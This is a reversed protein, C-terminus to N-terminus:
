LPSAWPVLSSPCMHQRMLECNSFVQLTQCCIALTIIPLHPPLHPHRAFILGATYRSLLPSVSHISNCACKYLMSMHHQLCALAAQQSFTCDRPSKVHMPTTAPRRSYILAPRYQIGAVLKPRLNRVVTPIWTWPSRVRVPKWRDRAVAKCVLNCSSPLASGLAAPPCPSTFTICDCPASASCAIISGWEGQCPQAAIVTHTCFDDRGISPASRPTYMAMTGAPQRQQPAIGLNEM